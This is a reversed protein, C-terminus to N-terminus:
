HRVNLQERLEAQGAPTRLDIVRNTIAAGPTSQMPLTLVEDSVAARKAAFNQQPVTTTPRLSFDLMQTSRVTTSVTSTTVRQGTVAAEKTPYLAPAITNVKARQLDLVKGNVDAQKSPDLPSLLQAPAALAVTVGLLWALWKM